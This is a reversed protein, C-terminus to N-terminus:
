TKRSVSSEERRAYLAIQLDMIFDSKAKRTMSTSPCSNLDM